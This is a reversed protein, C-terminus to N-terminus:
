ADAEPDFARFRRGAYNRFLLHDGERGLLYDPVLPVKGGGGSLDVLYHPVAGGSIWGHLGRLLDCGRRVPTRFHATGCREDCRYLNGPRIRNRLQARLLDRLVPVRDNVGKLLVTNGTLMIGAEALRRCALAAEATLEDAHNVHIAVMLPAMRRLCRVLGPTIRQPLAVPVRTGLRIIEVHPMARLRRLLDGLERDTLLLPDGGSVVVERVARHRAIYDLAPALRAALPLATTRGTRRARTCFRCYVACADTVLLLVRDPYRHVLQPVPSTREEALPDDTEGPSTRLEHRTPIVTRRLPSRPAAALLAAVYPTLAFPLTGGPAQHPRTFWAREAPTLKLIAALAPLTTIRHRLQWRWDDWDARSAAPFHRRRFDARAPTSTEAHHM